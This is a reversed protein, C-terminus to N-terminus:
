LPRRYRRVIGDWGLISFFDKSASVLFPAASMRKLATENEAQVRYSNVQRGSSDFEVLRFGEAWKYPSLFLLHNGNDGPMYASIYMPATFPSPNTRRQQRRYSDEVESGTLQVTPHLNLGTASVTFARLQFTATEILLVTDPGTFSLFAFGPIAALQASGLLTLSQCDYVTIRSSRATGPGETGLLALRNGHIAASTVGPISPFASWKGINTDLLRGIPAGNEMDHMFVWRDAAAVTQGRYSPLATTQVGAEGPGLVLRAEQFRAPASGLVLVAARGEGETFFGIRREHYVIGLRLDTRTEPTLIEQGLTVSSIVALLSCCVISSKLSM